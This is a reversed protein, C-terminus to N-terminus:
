SLVTRFISNLSPYTPSIIFPITVFSLEPYKRVPLKRSILPAEGSIWVAGFQCVYGGWLPKAQINISWSPAGLLFWLEPM